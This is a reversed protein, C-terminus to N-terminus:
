AGSVEGDARVAYGAKASTSPWVPSDLASRANAALGFPSLSGRNRPGGTEPSRSRPV